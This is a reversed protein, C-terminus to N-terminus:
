SAKRRKVPKEAKAHKLSKKLADMLNIVRNSMDRPGSAVPALPQYL